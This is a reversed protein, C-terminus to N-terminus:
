LGFEPHIDIVRGMPWHTPQSQNDNILVLDGIDINTRENLWKPRQQLRTLYENKWKKWFSRHEYQVNQWQTLLNLNDIEDSRDPVAM